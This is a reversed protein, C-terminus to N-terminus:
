QKVMGTIMLKEEPVGGSLAVQRIKEVASQKMAGVGEYLWPKQLNEYKIACAPNFACLEWRELVDLLHVTIFESIRIINDEETTEGPILPTRIWLSTSNSEQKRKKRVYAAIAKINNFILDNGQGTLEKHKVDDFIKIDYLIADTYALMPTLTEIPFFGCTDLATHVDLAKLRQFFETLFEPYLMPEGGSVTVGGGFEDYYAKDKIVEQVLEDVTWQAGVPAVAKAPCARACTLCAKCSDRAIKIGSNDASLTNHSCAELCDLCGICKGAEYRIEQKPNISEPNQCWRCKLPCGKAFVTTRMGPGDHTTGRLVEVTMMTLERM